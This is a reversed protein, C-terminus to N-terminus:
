EPIGAKRLLGEYWDLRAQDKFRIVQMLHKVRADPKKELLIRVQERAEDMRDIDAYVAALRGHLIPFDIRVLSQEFLEVAREHQGDVHFAFAESALLWGPHLPSIIKARRYLDLAHKEQGVFPLQWALGSLAYFNNPAVEIAKERLEIGEKFRGSEIYLNGLHIYGIPDNPGMEIAKKAFEIGRRRDAEVDKSWGRRVAERYTWALGGV